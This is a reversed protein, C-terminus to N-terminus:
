QLVGCSVTTSLPITHSASKFIAENGYSPFPTGNSPVMLLCSYLCSSSKPTLSLLLIQDTLILMLGLLQEPLAKNKLM